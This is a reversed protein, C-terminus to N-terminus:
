PGETPWDLIDLSRQALALLLFSESIPAKCFWSGAELVHSFGPTSDILAQAGCFM